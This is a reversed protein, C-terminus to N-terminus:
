TACCAVGVVVESWRCVAVSRGVSRGSGNSTRVQEGGGKPKSGVCGAAKDIAVARSRENWAAATCSAQWVAM